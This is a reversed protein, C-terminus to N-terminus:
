ARREVARELRPRVEGLLPDFHGPWAARPELAAVKLMSKRAQETDHNYHETPVRPEGRMPRSIGFSYFCDSTLALRDAARWLVISGPTHGPV